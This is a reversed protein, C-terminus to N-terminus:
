INALDNALDRLQKKNNQIKYEYESVMNELANIQMKIDKMNTINNKLEKNKEIISDM